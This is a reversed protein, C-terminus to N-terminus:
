EENHFEDLYDKTKFSYEASYSKYGKANRAIARFYYLTHKRLTGITLEHYLVGADKYQTVDNNPNVPYISGFNNTLGYEIQTSAPEDTYWNITAGSKSIYAITLNYIRPGSSDARPVLQIVAFAIVGIILFLCVILYPISIGWFLPKGPYGSLLGDLRLWSGIKQLLSIKQPMGCNSCFRKRPDM